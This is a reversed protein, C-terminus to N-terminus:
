RRLFFFRRLKERKLIRFLEERKEIIEREGKKVLDKAKDFDAWYIEKLQPSILFHVEKTNEEVIKKYRIKDALFLVDIANKIQPAGEQLVEVNVGIIFDSKNKLPEAPVPLLIGGDILFKEKWKLPPFFGPLACSAIIAKYLLGDEILVKEGKILDVSTATFPIKCDSFKYNKFINKAIKFFPKPDILYPKIIRLNWLFVEKVFEFSKELFIKKEKVSISASYGKFSFIEKKYKNLIDFAFKELRCADPQLAYLGGIIAGISTGAISNIKIGLSELGKLVGIHFFGRAGGGGLALGIKM